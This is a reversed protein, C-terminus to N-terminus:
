SIKHAASYREWAILAEPPKEDHQKLFSFSTSGNDDGHRSRSANHWAPIDSEVKEEGHPVHGYHVLREQRQAYQAKPAARQTQWRRMEQRVHENETQLKQQQKAYNHQRKGHQQQQQQPYHWRREEERGESLSRQKQEISFHADEMSWDLSSSEYTPSRRSFNNDRFEYVQQDQAFYTEFQAQSENHRSFTMHQADTVMPPSTSSTRSFYVPSRRQPPSATRYLSKNASSSASNSGFGFQYSYQNTSFSEAQYSEDPGSKESQAPTMTSSDTSYMGFLNKRSTGYEAPSHREKRTPTPLGSAYTSAKVPTTPRFPVSSPQFSVAGSFLQSHM